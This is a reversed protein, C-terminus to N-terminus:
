SMPVLRVEVRRNRAPGDTDVNSAVPRFQGYGAARTRVALAPDGAVIARAVRAARALSLELNSPYEASAIPLDDTHGAVDLHLDPQAGALARVADLVPQAEARLEASGSAFSIADSVAVVVATREVSVHAGGALGSAAVLDRLEAATDALRAASPSAAAPELDSPEEAPAAAEFRDLADGRPAFAEEPAAAPEPRTGDVAAAVAGVQAAPPPPAPTRVRVAVAVIGFALLLLVLDSFTVLWFTADEDDRAAPPV